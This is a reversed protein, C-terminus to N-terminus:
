HVEAKVTEEKTIFSTISSQYVPESDSASEKEKEKQSSTLQIGSQNKAPCKLLHKEGKAHIDLSSIGLGTVSIATMCVACYAKQEDDPIKKIWDKYDQHQLCEGQLSM